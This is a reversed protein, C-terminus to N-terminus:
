LGTHRRKRPEATFDLGANGNIPPHLVVRDPVFKYGAREIRILYTIVARDLGDIAYRGNADSTASRRSTAYVVAGPLAIGGADKVLGALTFPTSSSQHLAVVRM